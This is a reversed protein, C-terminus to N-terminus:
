VRGSKAWDGAWIRTILTQPWALIASLTAVWVIAVVMSRVKREMM